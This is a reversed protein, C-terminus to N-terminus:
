QTTQRLIRQYSGDLLRDRGCAAIASMRRIDANPEYQKCYTFAAEAWRADPNISAIAGCIARKIGDETIAPTYIQNSFRSALAGGMVKQFKEMNNVTAFTLPAWRAHFYGVRSNIVRIEARQDMVALLFRLQDPNVKEAEELILLKYPIPTGADMLETLIGAQTACTCDIRYVNEEGIMAAFADVLTSKGSSPLGHIVSASRVQFDSEVATALASHMIEIAAERDFIHDFYGTRDLNITLDNRKVVELPRYVLPAEDMPRSIPTPAISPLNAEYGKVVWKHLNCAPGVIKEVIYKFKVDNTAKTGGRKDIQFTYTYILNEGARRPNPAKIPSVISWGSEQRNSALIRNAVKQIQAKLKEENLNNLSTKEITITRIAM